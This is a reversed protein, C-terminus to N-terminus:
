FFTFFPILLLVGGISMIMEKYARIARLGETKYRFYKKMQMIYGIISVIFVLIIIFIFYDIIISKIMDGNIIFDHVPNDFIYKILLLITIFFLMFGANVGLLIGLMILLEPPDDNDAYVRKMYMESFIKETLFLSGVLIGFTVIKMFYMVYFKRDMIIDMISYKNEYMSILKNYCRDRYTDLTKLLKDMNESETLDDLSNKKNNVWRKFDFIVQNFNSDLDIKRSPTEFVYENKKPKFTMKERAKQSLGQKEVRLVDAYETLQNLIDDALQKREQMVNSAQEFRQNIIDHETRAAQVQEQIETYDSEISSPTVVQNYKKKAEALRQEASQVDKMLLHKREDIAARDANKNPKIIYKNWFEDLISKAKEFGEEASTVENKAYEIQQSVDKQKREHNKLKAELQRLSQESKELDKVINKLEKKADEYDKRAIKYKQEFILAKGGGLQYRRSVATGFMDKALDIIMNRTKTIPGYDGKALNKNLGQMISSFEEKYGPNIDDRKEILDYWKDIYKAKKLFKTTIFKWHENYYNYMAKKIMKVGEQIQRKLFRKSKESVYDNDVVQEPQDNKSNKSPPPKSKLEQLRKETKDILDKIATDLLLIKSSAESIQSDTKHNNKIYKMNGQRKYFDLMDKNWEVVLDQIFNNKFMMLVREIREAAPSCSEIIGSTEIKDLQKELEVISDVILYSEEPETNTKHDPSITTTINEVIDNTRETNIDVDYDDDSSGNEHQEQTISNPQKNNPNLKQMNNPNNLSPIGIAPQVSNTSTNPFRFREFNDGKLLFINNKMADKKSALADLNYIKGLTQKDRQETNGLSM